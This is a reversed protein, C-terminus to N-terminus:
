AKDSHIVSMLPVWNGRISPPTPGTWENRCSNWPNTSRTHNGISWYRRSPRTMLPSCLPALEKVVEDAIAKRSSVFRTTCIICTLLSIGFFYGVVLLYGTWLASISIFVTLSVNVFSFRRHVPRSVLLPHKKTNHFGNNTLQQKTTHTKNMTQEIMQIEDNPSKVWGWRWSVVLFSGWFADINVNYGRFNDLKTTM